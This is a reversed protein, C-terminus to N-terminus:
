DYNLCFDLKVWDLKLLVVAVLLNCFAQNHFLTVGM